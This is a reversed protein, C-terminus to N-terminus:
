EIKILDKKLVFGSSSQAKKNEFYVEVFNKTQLYSSVVDGKLLYGKRPKSGIKPNNYFFTKAAMVRWKAETYNPFSNFEAISISGLETADITTETASKDLDEDTVHYSSSFDRHLYWNKKAANYKFFYHRSWRWSSGGYFDIDFGSENIEIGQYPDGFVGGCRYCLIASDNRVVQQLKGNTQRILIVFPRNVDTDITDEGTQKLVLIADAKKDNNLDGAIYDLMEYGPLLFSRAEEPLTKTQAAITQILLLSFGSLM